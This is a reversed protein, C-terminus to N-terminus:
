YVELKNLVTTSVFEMEHMFGDFKMYWQRPAQKLGYLSKRYSACLSVAVKLGTENKVLAKWKLDADSNASALAINDHNNVTMYLTGKKKGRAVVMAGKIIKWSSSGFSLDYGEDDLQGVFIMNRKLDPIHRVGRLQWVLGNPTKIRVDGKGAIELPEDDTLYVILDRVEDFKLKAKGTSSSVATVTGSWSEKTTKEKAIHFAVNWSLSLRIVSMVKRDLVKWEAETMGISKDELPQWLDKGYLYDEIQMRWFGYDSGDFKEIMLKGEDM